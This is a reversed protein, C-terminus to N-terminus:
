PVERSGTAGRLGTAEGPGTIGDLGPGPSQQHEPLHDRIHHGPM